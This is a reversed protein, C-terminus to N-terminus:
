RGLTSLWGCFLIDIALLIAILAYLNRWSGLVPSPEDAEGGTVREDPREPPAPSM